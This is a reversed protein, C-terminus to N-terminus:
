HAPAERPEHSSPQEESGGPEVEGRHNEDLAPEIPERAPFSRSLKVNGLDDVLEATVEEERVTWRTWHNLGGNGDPDDVSGSDGNLWQVVGNVEQVDSTHLHATIYALVGYKELLAWFRDRQVPDDGMYHTHADPTYWSPLFAPSHSFVFLHHAGKQRATRLDDDLWALEEEDPYYRVNFTSPDNLGPDYFSTDLCAFHSRGWDWSYCTGPYKELVTPPQALEQNFLDLPDGGEIEWMEHNGPSVLIPTGSALADTTSKFSDYLLRYVELDDSGYFLDGAHLIFSAEEEGALGVIRRFAPTLSRVDEEASKGRNDAMSVFTFEFAEPNATRFSYKETVADGTLVRYSYETDPSLGTLTLHHYTAPEEDRTTRQLKGDKGFQVEGIEPVDTDWYVIATDATVLGLRPGHEIAVPVSTETTGCGPAVALVFFVLSTCFWLLARRQM